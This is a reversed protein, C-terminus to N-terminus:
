KDCGIKVGDVEVECPCKCSINTNSDLLKIKLEGNTKEVDVKKFVVTFNDFGLNSKNLEGALQESSTIRKPTLKQQKITEITFEDFKFAPSDLVYFEIEQEQPNEVLKRPIIGIFKNNLDLKGLENPLISLSLDTSANKAEVSLINDHKEASRWDCSLSFLAFLFFCVGTWKVCKSTSCFRTQRSKEFYNM